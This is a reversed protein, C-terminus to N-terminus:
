PELHAQRRRRTNQFSAVRWAGEHRVVTFTVVSDRDPDTNPTDDISTGGTSIMVASDPTLFRIKPEAHNIDDMTSGKLPGDFLMQHVDAIVKRGVAHAGDFSIYDADELFPAAYGSGDGAKWAEAMTLLIQKIEARNADQDTMAREGGGNEGGPSPVASSRSKALGAGSPGAETSAIPFVEYTVPHDRYRLRYVATWITSQIREGVTMDIPVAPHVPRAVGEMSPGVPSGRRTSPALTVRPDRALRKTKGARSRTTFFLRDDNIIRGVPTPVGAGDRRYTTLLAVSSATLPEWPTPRNVNM